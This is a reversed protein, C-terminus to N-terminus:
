CQFVSSLCPVMITLGSIVCVHMGCLKKPWFVSTENVTYTVILCVKSYIVRQSQFYETLSVAMGATEHTIVTDPGSSPQEGAGDIHLLMTQYLVHLIGSLRSHTHVARLLIGIHKHSQYQRM